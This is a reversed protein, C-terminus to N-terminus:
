LGSGVISGILFALVILSVIAFTLGARARLRGRMHDRAGGAHRDLDPTWASHHLAPELSPAMSCATFVPLRRTDPTSNPSRAGSEHHSVVFAIGGILVLAAALLVGARLVIGVIRDLRDDNMKM